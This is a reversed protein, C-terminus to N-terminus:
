DIWKKYNKICSECFKKGEIEFYYEDQIYEGCDDCLPRSELWEEQKTSSRLFDRLPNDTRMFM